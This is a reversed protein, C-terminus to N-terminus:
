PLNSLLSNIALLNGQPSNDMTSSDQPSGDTRRDHEPEKPYRGLRPKKLNQQKEHNEHSSIPKIGRLNM